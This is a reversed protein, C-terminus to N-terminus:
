KAIRLSSIKLAIDRFAAQLKVGDTADYFHGVDGYEIQTPTSNGACKTLFTKSADSVQSGITFV